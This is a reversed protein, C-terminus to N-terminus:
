LMVEVWVLSCVQCCALQSGGVRPARLVGDGPHRCCEGTALLGARYREVLDPLPTRKPATILDPM